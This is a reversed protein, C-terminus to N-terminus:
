LALEHNREQYDLSEVRLKPWLANRWPEGHGGGGDLLPEHCIVLWRHGVLVSLEKPRLIWTLVLMGSSRGGSLQKM